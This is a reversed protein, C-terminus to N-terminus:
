FEPKRAPPGTGLSARLIGLDLEEAVDYLLLAHFSGKCFQM